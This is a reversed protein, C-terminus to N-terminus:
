IQVRPPLQKLDTVLNELQAAEASAGKQKLTEALKLM